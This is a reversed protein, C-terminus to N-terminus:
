HLSVTTASLRAVSDNLPHHGDSENTNFFAMNEGLQNAQESMSEAAASTEEVLAANQQTVEDIQSIALHVQSIGEAQEASAKAIHDIMQSVQKVSDNINELMSGSEGALETGQNILAVNDDILNKIDKAADASKQALARVEGAVVAFGRGQEGARAAEVAANLALLNTQFAIGDILSVIDVIRNSSDQISTMAAITQKMVASGQTAKAQVETALRAVDQASQTNQQVTANMQEMTASTEELSAAQQQVRQSLDLAGKTVEDSAGQVIESANVAQAIIASLNEATTNIAKKIDALQGGCQASVQRTLDGKGQANMVGTIDSIVEDLVRVTANISEKLDLMEGNAAAEVRQSFVGQSVHDMVNNIDNIVENMERMSGSALDLMRRYEGSVDADIQVSFQGAQISQMVNNLADVVDTISDASDNIGTKLQLLDGNVELAMRQSFDGEALANVTRNAESITKQLANLLNNVSDSMAGIEDRDSIQARYSFDQQQALNDLGRALTAVNRSIRASILLGLGLGLALAIVIMSIILVSSQNFLETSLASADAANNVKILTLETLLNDVQENIKRNDVLAIQVSERNQMTLQGSSKELRAAELLQATAKSYEQNAERMRAFLAIAEPATILKEAENLNEQMRTAYKEVAQYYEAQDISDDTQALLLNRVARAQYLLDINAEKIYNLGLLEREYMSDAMTNIKSVSNLGLVGVSLMLVLLLGVLSMLKTRVSLDFFWTM